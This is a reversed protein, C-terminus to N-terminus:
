PLVAKRLVRANYRLIEGYSIRGEEGGLPDLTYVKVGAAEALISATRAPLQPESFIAKAGSERIRKVMRVLSRPTAARAPFPNIVGALVLQYRRIFYNFSPHFLFLPKGQVPELVSAIERDLRVLEEAFRVANAQYIASGGPDLASLVKVLHPLMEKVTLPDTWFHPDTMGEDHDGAHSDHHSNMLLRTGAPVLGVMEINESTFLRGIWEKDLGAGAYFLAAAGEIKWLDSPKPEFTHPSAGPALLRVVQGRDGVVTRIIEALPHITVVYRVPGDAAYGAPVVSFVLFFLGLATLFTKTM